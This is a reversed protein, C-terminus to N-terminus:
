LRRSLVAAAALWIALCILGAFILGVGAIPSNGLAVIMGVVLVAVPLLGGAILWPNRAVRSARTSSPETM